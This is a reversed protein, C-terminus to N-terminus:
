NKCGVMALIEGTKPDAVVAAGNGVRYGKLKDVEEAVIDEAKEQLEYDLTTKVQLGGAEVAQEGFQEALIQKVYIVFHPAKMSVADRQTFKMKKVEENAKEEQERTIYKEEKTINIEPLLLTSVQVRPYAQWFLRSPLPLNM